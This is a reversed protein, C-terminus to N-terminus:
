SLKKAQPVASTSSQTVPVAAGFLDGIATAATSSMTVTDVLTEATTGDANLVTATCSIAVNPQAPSAPGSVVLSMITPTGAPVASTADAQAVPKATADPTLIVSNPDASVVAITQGSGLLAGLFPATGFIYEQSTDGIPLILPM